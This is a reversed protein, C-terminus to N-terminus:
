AADGVYHRQIRRGLRCFVEYGITGVMDAIDDVTQIDNILTIRNANELAGQPVASVDFCLMDMTVRGALPVKYEGIYGHLKGSLSRFIGDAYGIAVTALCAGERLEQTAGYGIAQTRDLTRIQIVPASLEVVNLLPNPLDANPTIGYLSCGPRALQFHYANDLYIGASNAFSAPLEPFCTRAKNFLELQMANSPHQPESACALHSMIASMQCKEILEPTQALANWEHETLGLRAMATDVHLISPANSHDGAVQAWREIQKPSNLAPILQHNIFALEEGAGVGHFVAIRRDPLIKRLAIGEELTAVFFSNCGAKALALSVEEAGLGYANAKVVAACEDGSFQARLRNYNEVIRDLYVTLKPGDFQTM